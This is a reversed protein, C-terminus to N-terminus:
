GQKFLEKAKDGVWQGAQLGTQTTAMLVPALVMGVLLSMRRVKSTFMLKAEHGLGGNGNKRYSKKYKKRRRKAM